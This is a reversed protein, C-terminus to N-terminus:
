QSEAALLQGLVRKEWVRGMNTMNVKVEEKNSRHNGTILDVVGFGSGLKRNTHGMLEQVVRINVMNEVM